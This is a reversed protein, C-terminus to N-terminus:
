EHLIAEIQKLEDDCFHRNNLAALNNELQKVGGIHL